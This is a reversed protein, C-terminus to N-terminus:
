FREPRDGSVIRQWLKGRRDADEVPELWVIPGKVVGGSLGAPEELTNALGQRRTLARSVQPELMYNIWQMALAVQTSRSSIAWCDLWALAGERPVVYGVDLGADLFQKFQQQGYNAHMVAVGHRRFLELSDEPLNYFSLLNRRLAVLHRAVAGWQEGAIRFPPQGLHMAALSFGHSSGDFALVRGKWRPDWLVELSEPPAAFAKRDYILGMESYTYPVAYVRGQRTLGAIADLQRFRPLQRIANPIDGLVLPVLQQQAAFQAIEVTNAALVDYVPGKPDTLKARLVDDSGVTTVEVRVGHRKEFVAVLDPDAYGPWALVRLVAPAAQACSLLAAWWVLALLPLWRRARQVRCGNVLTWITNLM